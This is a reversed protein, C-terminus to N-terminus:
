ASTVNMRHVAVHAFELESIRSASPLTVDNLQRDYHVRGNQGLTIQGGVLGGYVEAHKSYIHGDLHLGDPAFLIGQFTASQSNSGAIAAETTQPALVWFQPAADDEVTVASGTGVFLNVERNGQGTISATTEDRSALYVRVVGDGRVEVSGGTGHPKRVTFWNEVGLTVNGDTTDFVLTGGSVDVSPAYYRGHELTVSEGDSVVLGDRMREVDPDANAQANDNSARVDNLRDVVLPDIPLLTPVGDIRQVTGGITGDNTYDVSYRGDGTVEASPNEVRLWQGTEVTGDITADASITVNGVAKVTGNSSRTVSYPGQTSNYSDVYAGTGVLELPGSEATAVIGGQIGRGEPLSVFRVSATRASPDVTVIGPTYTRFFEAWAEYYRGHVTVVATTNDVRNTLGRSANPFVRTTGNPTVQVTSAVTREGETKVIPVTLTGDRYHFEPRSVVVSGNGTSRFVGGGQYGVTQEGQEYVVAGLTVNVVEVTNPDRMGTLDTYRIRMWGANPRVSATGETDPLGFDVRAADSRGLAVASSRADFQSLSREAGAMGVAERDSQLAGYGVSAVAVAGVVAIGLLLAVGLVESQARDNTPEHHRM